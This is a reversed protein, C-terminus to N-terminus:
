GRSASCNGQRWPKDGGDALVGLPPRRRAVFRKRWPPPREGADSGTGCDRRAGTGPELRSARPRPLRRRLTRPATTPRRRGSACLAVESAREPPGVRRVSGPRRDLEVVEAVRAGCPEDAVSDWRVHHLPDHSV